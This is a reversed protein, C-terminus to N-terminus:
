VGTDTVEISHYIILIFAVVDVSARTYLCLGVLLESAEDGYALEEDSSGLLREDGKVGALYVADVEAVERLEERHIGLRTNRRYVLTGHDDWAPLTGVFQGLFFGCGYM